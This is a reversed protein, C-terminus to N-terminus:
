KVRKTRVLYRQGNPETEVAPLGGLPAVEHVQSGELLQDGARPEVQRGGIVCDAVKPWWTRIHRATGLGEEEMVDDDVQAFACTFATSAALGARRLQVSVGFQDDLM